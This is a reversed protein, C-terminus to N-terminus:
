AAVLLERQPRQGFTLNGKDVVYDEDHELFLKQTMWADPDPLLHGNPQYDPHVCFSASRQGHHDLLHVNGSQGGKCDIRWRRGRNSRVFICKATQFTERQEPTLVELFTILAREKAKDQVKRAEAYLRESEARRLAEQHRWQDMRVREAEIQEPTLAQPQAVWQTWVVDPPIYNNGTILTGTTNMAAWGNWIQNTGASIPMQNTGIYNTGLTTATIYNQQQYPIYQLQLPTTYLTPGGFTM